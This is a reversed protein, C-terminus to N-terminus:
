SYIETSLRIQFSEINFVSKARSFSLQCIRKCIECSNLINEAIIKKVASFYLIFEIFKLYKGMKELMIEVKENKENEM